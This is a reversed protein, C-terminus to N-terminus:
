KINKNYIDNYYQAGTIIIIQQHKYEKLYVMIIIAYM